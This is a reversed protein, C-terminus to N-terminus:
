AHTSLQECACLALRATGAGRVCRKRQLVSQLLLMKLDKENFEEAEEEEDEEEEEEDESGEEGGHGHGHGHEHRHDGFDGIAELPMYYGSLHVATEPTLGPPAAACWPSRCPSGLPLDLPHEGAPGEAPQVPDGGAQVWTVGKGEGEEEEEEEEEAEEESVEM